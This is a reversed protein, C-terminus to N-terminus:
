PNIHILAPFFSEEHCFSTLSDAVGQPLGSSLAREAIRTKSPSTHAFLWPISTNWVPNRKAVEKVDQQRQQQPEAEQGENLMDFVIKNTMEQHINLTGYDQSGINPM